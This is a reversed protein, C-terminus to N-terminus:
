VSKDEGRDRKKLIGIARMAPCPSERDSFKLLTGPTARDFKTSFFPSGIGYLCNQGNGYWRPIPWREGVQGGRRRRRRTGRRKKRVSIFLSNAIQSCLNIEVFYSIWQYFNVATLLFSLHFTRLRIFKFNSQDQDWTGLRLWNTRNDLRVQSEKETRMDWWKKLHASIPVIM